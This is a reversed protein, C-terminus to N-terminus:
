LPVRVELPGGRGDSESDSDPCRGQRKLFLL